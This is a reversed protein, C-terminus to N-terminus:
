EKFPFQQKSRSLTLCDAPADETLVTGAGLTAGQGVAVPAVLSCHAGVMAGDEIRTMHKQAGDYNCTITGAGINVHKGVSADGLYSLHNVKSGEGVHAKKLEVFNGVQARADLVVGPRLRAFPGVRVDQGISADDMVCHDKIVAGSAIRVNSLVCFAGIRVNDEISVNHLVCGSGIEIQSGWIHEGTVVVNVDISIDSGVHLQGRLDFRRPDM